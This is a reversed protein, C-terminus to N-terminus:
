NREMRAKTKELSAWPLGVIEELYLQNLKLDTAATLRKEVANHYAISAENYEEFTAKNKEFLNELLTHNASADEEAAQRAKLVEKALLFKYYRTLVEQNFRKREEDIE